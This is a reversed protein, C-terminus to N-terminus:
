TNRIDENMAIEYEKIKRWLTSRSIQLSESAKALHWNTHQLVKTIHDKEVDQLSPISSFDTKEKERSEKRQVLLALSEDLIIEGSTAIAARTLINELERVNGPWDYIM